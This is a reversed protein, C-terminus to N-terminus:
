RFEKNLVFLLCGHFFFLLLKIAPSFRVPPGGVSRDHCCSWGGKAKLSYFDSSYLLQARKWRIAQASPQALTTTQPLFVKRQHKFWHALCGRSSSLRPAQWLRCTEKVGSPLTASPLVSSKHTKLSVATPFYLSLPATSQRVGCRSVFCRGMTASRKHSSHRPSGLATFKAASDVLLVGISCLRLALLNQPVPSTPEM